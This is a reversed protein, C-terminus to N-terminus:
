GALKLLHPSLRVQTDQGLLQFLVVVRKESISSVLGELGTLPGSAVRVVVGPKIPTLEAYQANHQQLEFQKISELTQPRMVAFEEGFRVIKLVGLTSRVPSISHEVHAPQFFVYGPFLPDLLIVERNRAFKIIKIRPLYCRYGQRSLNDEAIHEQRSKTQVVYWPMDAEPKEKGRLM